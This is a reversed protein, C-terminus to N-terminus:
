WEIDGGGGNGEDPNPNPNTGGGEGEDPNPDPEPEVPKSEEEYVAYVKTTLDSDSTVNFLKSTCVTTGNEIVLLKDGLYWGVFRYGEVTPATPFNTITDGIRGTWIGIHTSSFDSGGGILGNEQTRVMTEFQVIMSQGQMKEVIKGYIIMNEKLEVGDNLNGSKDSIPQTFGRDLFYGEFNFYTAGYESDSAPLGIGSPDYRYFTRTETYKNGFSDYFELTVTYEVEKNCAECEGCGSECDESDDYSDDYDWDDDDPSGDPYYTCTLFTCGDGDCREDCEEPPLCNIGGCDVYGDGCEGECGDGFLCTIPTNECEGGCSLFYNCEEDCMWWCETSGDDEGFCAGCVCAALSFPLCGTTLLASTFVTAGVVLLGKKSHFLFDLFKDFKGM